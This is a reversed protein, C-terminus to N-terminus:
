AGGLYDGGTPLPLWCVGIAASSWVLVAAVACSSSCACRHRGEICSHPDAHVVGPRSRLTLIAPTSDRGHDSGSHLQRSHRPVSRDVTPKPHHKSGGSRTPTDRWVESRTLSDLQQKIPPRRQNASPKSRTTPKTPTYATTSSPSCATSCTDYPPPTNTATPEDTTTTTKPHDQDPCPPSPASSDSP